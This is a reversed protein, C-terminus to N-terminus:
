ILKEQFNPYLSYIANKLENFAKELDDNVIKCDFEKSKHIEEVEIIGTSIRKEILDADETARSELRKKITDTDPPIIGIYNALLSSIM